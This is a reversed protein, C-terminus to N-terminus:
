KEKKKKVILKIKKIDEKTIFLITKKSIDNEKCFINLFIISCTTYSIISSMAAGTMGLKPITIFNLIVNIVVSITLINLVLLQRGKSIYLPHIIKYIIMSLTGIFLLVTVFFAGEFENGYVVNIFIKGLLIFGLIIILALYLCYKTVLAIEQISDEKSTKNVIVDKLADPILWLMNALQIGVSYLGVVSSDCMNKLFIIDINYNLTMMLYMLMSIFGLRYIKFLSINHKKLFKFNPKLKYNYFTGIIIILEDVITLSLMANLSGRKFYYLIIVFIIYIIKYIINNIDRKKIDEVAAIYLLNTRLIQGSALLLTIWIYYNMKAIFAVGFLLLSLGAQILTLMVFTSLTDEGYKRRYTSYTQGIGFSVIPVIIGVLNIIYAYEGKLEVGLSRNILASSILTILIIFIKSFIAWIYIKKNKENEM